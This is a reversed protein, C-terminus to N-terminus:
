SKVEQNQFGAAQVPAGQKKFVGRFSQEAPRTKENFDLAKKNETM